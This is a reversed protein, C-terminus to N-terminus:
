TACPNLEPQYHRGSNSSTEDIITSSLVDDPSMQQFKGLSYESAPSRTFSPESFTPYLSRFSPALLNLEEEKQIIEFLLPEAYICDLIILESKANSSLNPIFSSIERNSVIFNDVSGNHDYPYDIVTQTDDLSSSSKELFLPMLTMYEGLPAMGFETESNELITSETWSFNFIDNEVSVSSM